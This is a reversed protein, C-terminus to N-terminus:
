NVAPASMSPAAAEPSSGWDKNPRSGMQFVLKGGRLVDANNIWLNVYDVPTKKSGLDSGRVSSVTLCLLAVLSLINTLKKM